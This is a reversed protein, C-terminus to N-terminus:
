YGYGSEGYSELGYGGRQVGMDELDFTTLEVDAESIVLMYLPRKALTAHKADFNPNTPIPMTTLAPGAGARDTVTM